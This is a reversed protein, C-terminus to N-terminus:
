ARLVRAIAQRLSDLTFPKELVANVANVARSPQEEHATIMLIAQHPALQKIRVALENGKMGPMQFDTTVLDFRGNAFLDLAEAGHSAETVLHNDIELMLRLSTRVNPEDDVVLIRKGRIIKLKMREVRQARSLLVIYCRRAFNNM